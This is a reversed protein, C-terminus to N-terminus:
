PGTGRGFAVTSGDESIRLGTMDVGDDTLFSTVRVPRFAPGVATFVNRKGEEYAIWAIRDVRAASVLEVPMGPKLYQAITPQHQAVLAPPTGMLIAAAILLIVAFRIRRMVPRGAHRLIVPVLCFLLAGLLASPM